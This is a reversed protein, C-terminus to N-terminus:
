TAGDDLSSADPPVDIILQDSWYTEPMGTSAALATIVTRLARERVRAVTASVPSSMTAKIADFAIVLGAITLGGRGVLSELIDLKAVILAIDFDGPTTPNSTTM